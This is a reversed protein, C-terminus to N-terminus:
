NSCSVIYECCNHCHHHKFQENKISICKLGQSPCNLDECSFCDTKSCIAYGNINNCSQNKPCKMNSCPDFIPPISTTSTLTSIQTTSTSIPTSTSITMQSITQGTTTVGTTSSITSSITPSSTTSTPSITSHGTTLPENSSSSGSGNNCNNNEVFECVGELSCFGFICPNPHTCNIPAEVCSAVGSDSIQCRLPSCLDTTVCSINGCQICNGVEFYECDGNNINCGGQICPNPHSCNKLQTICLDFILPSCQSIYCPNKTICADEGCDVCNNVLTNVCGTKADCSDITCHNNDDCDIAISKCGENLNCVNSVCANDEYKKSCNFDSEECQNNVCERQICIFEESNCNINEFCNCSTSDGNCVGCEDVSECQTEFNTEIGFVHIDRRKRNCNIIDLPTTSFTNGSPSDIQHFGEVEDGIGLFTFILKGQVFIFIDDSHTVKLTNSIQQPNLLSDFHIRVCWKYNHDEGENGFGINDVPFFSRNFYGNKIEPVEYEGGFTIDPNIVKTWQDFTTANDILIVNNGYDPTPTDGAVYVMSGSDSLFQQITNSQDTFFFDPINDKAFDPNKIDNTDFWYLTQCYIIKLVLLFCFLIYIKM